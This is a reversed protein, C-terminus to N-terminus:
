LILVSIGRTHPPSGLVDARGELVGFYEGRIRPHAEIRDNRDRCIDINGAYAPTLRPVHLISIIFSLIGRTHPPSGVKLLSKSITSLYEGRIRPHAEEADTVEGLEAINGAYAPTLGYIECCYKNM